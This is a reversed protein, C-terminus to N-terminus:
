IPLYTDPGSSCSLIMKMVQSTRESESSPFASRLLHEETFVRARLAMIARPAFISRPIATEMYSERLPLCPYVTKATFCHACCTTCLMCVAESSALFPDPVFMCVRWCPSAIVGCLPMRSLNNGAKKGREFLTQLQQAQGRVQMFDPREHWRDITTYQWRM